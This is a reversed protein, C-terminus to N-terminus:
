VLGSHHQCTLDSFMLSQHTFMFLVLSACIIIRGKRKISREKKDVKNSNRDMETEGKVFQLAKM